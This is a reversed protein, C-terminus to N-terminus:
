AGGDQAVEQWAVTVEFLTEGNEEWDLWVRAQCLGEVPAPVGQACLRYAADEQGSVQWQEDYCLCWLGQSLTGGMRRAAERQAHAVEGGAAKLVEAASQVEVMARDRRAFGESRADAWLFARLCLVAALAFVALMVVQELLALPAKSRM